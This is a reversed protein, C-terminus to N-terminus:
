GQLLGSEILAARIREREEPVIPMLPPRPVAYTQKGMLQLAVKMRNHMDLLPAAYFVQMVPFM